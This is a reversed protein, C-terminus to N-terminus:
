VHLAHLRTDIEAPTEKTIDKDWSLTLRERADTTLAARLVGLARPPACLVLRATKDQALLHLTQKAVEKLFEEEAADHPNPRSEIAHRHMGTSDHSRMPRDRLPPPQQPRMDTDVLEVLRAGTRVRTLFRALAGDAVVILTSGALM